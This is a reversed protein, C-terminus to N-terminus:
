SGSVLRLYLWQRMERAHRLVFHLPTTRQLAPMTVSATNAVIGAKGARRQRAASCGPFAHFNTGVM